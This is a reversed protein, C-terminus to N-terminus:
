VPEISKLDMGELPLDDAKTAQSTKLIQKLHYEMTKVRDRLESLEEALSPTGQLPAYDSQAGARQMARRIGDERQMGKLLLLEYVDYIDGGIADVLQMLLEAKPEQAETEIRYITMETAGIVRAVAARSMGRQERLHQLYAAAAAKSM